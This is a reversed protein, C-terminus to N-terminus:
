IVYQSTRSLDNLLLRTSNKGNPHSQYFHQLAFFPQYLYDLCLQRWRQHSEMRFAANKLQTYIRKLWSEQLALLNREGAQQALELGLDIYQDLYEQSLPTYQVLSLRYELSEFQDLTDNTQEISTCYQQNEDYQRDSTLPVRFPIVNTHQM